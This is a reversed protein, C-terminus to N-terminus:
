RVCDSWHTGFYICVTAKLLFKPPCSLVRFVRYSM